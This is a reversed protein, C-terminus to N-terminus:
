QMSQSVNSDLSVPTDDKENSIDDVKVPLMGNDNACKIEMQIAKPSYAVTERNNENYMMISANIVGQCCCCCVAMCRLKKIMRLFVIYKGNNHDVMLYIIMVSTMIDMFMVIRQVFIGPKMIFVSTVMLAALEYIRTLLVIKFLTFKIKLLQINVDDGNQNEGHGPNVDKHLQWLRYIYISLHDLGLYPMTCGYCTVLIRATWLLCIHM